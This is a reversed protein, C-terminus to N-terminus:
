RKTTAGLLRKLGVKSSSAVWSFLSTLSFSSLVGEICLFLRAATQFLTTTAADRLCVLQLAQTEM